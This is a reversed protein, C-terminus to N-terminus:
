GRGSPMLWWYKKGRLKAKSVAGTDMPTKVCIEVPNNDQHNNCDVYLSLAYSGHGSDLGM